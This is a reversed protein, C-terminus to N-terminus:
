MFRHEWKLSVTANPKLDSEFKFGNSGEVLQFFDGSVKNLLNTTKNKIVIFEKTDIIIEDGSTFSGQIQISKGTELHIVKPNQCAGKITIVADTEFESHNYVGTYHFINSWGFSETNDYFLGKDFENEQDYVYTEDPNYESSSAYAYPDYATLPLSFSGFGAARALPIAGSYRVTYYKDPEDGFRLTVNKPRGKADLFMTVFRRTNNKLATYGREEFRCSLIFPRPEIWAGFDHAGHMGPISVVQDRTSPLMDEQSELKVIVGIDQLKIDDIFVDAETNM